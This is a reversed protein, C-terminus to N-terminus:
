LPVSVSVPACAVGEGASNVGAVWYDYVKGGVATTDIFSTKTPYGVIATDTLVGVEKRFVKYSKVNNPSLLGVPKSWKLKPTTLSVTPQILQILGEPAALVGQPTAANKVSFGSSLIFTTQDPYSDTPDVLNQVYAALLVMDTYVVSTAARLAVLDSHSGRNGEPGWAAIATTQTNIHTQFTAMSPVPTPFSLVAALMADHVQQALANVGAYNSIKVGIKVQPRNAM